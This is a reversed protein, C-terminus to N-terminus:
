SQWLSKLLRNFDKNEKVKKICRLYSRNLNKLNYNLEMLIKIKYRHKKNLSLDMKGINGNLILLNKDIKHNVKEKVLVQIGKLQQKEM